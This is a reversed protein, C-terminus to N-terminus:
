HFSHSELFPCEERLGDLLAAPPPHAHIVAPLLERANCMAIFPINWTALQRSIHDPADQDSRDTLSLAAVVECDLTQLTEIARLLSGGTTTVDELVVVRGSPTGLFDRDKPAGHSKPKGRGMSLVHSGPGYDDAQRAWKLQTLMALKSAGEPVGYFVDPHLSSDQLSELLFDTAQDLLFVDQAAKRWNVYWHSTKGSSLTIAKEFFGVIQHKLMWEIWRSPQHKPLDIPRQDTM